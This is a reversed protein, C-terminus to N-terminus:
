LKKLGKCSGCSGHGVTNSFINSFSITNSIKKPPKKPIQSNVKVSPGMSFFVQNSM